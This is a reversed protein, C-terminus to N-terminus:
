RLWPSRECTTVIGIKTTQALTTTEPEDGRQIPQTGHSPASATAACVCTVIM